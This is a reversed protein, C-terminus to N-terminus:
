IQQPSPPPPSDPNFPDSGSRAKRRRLALVVVAAALVIVAVILLIDLLSLTPAASGPAQPTPSSSGIVSVDNNGEDAVYIDGSSPDYLIGQPGHGVAITSVVSNSVGEIVSINNSGSNAVYIDGNGSDYALWDPGSGVAVTTILSNTSGSIVSVTDGAYNNGSTGADGVYIDGNSADFATGYPGSDAPLPVTAIVANTSGSIVSVTDSDQNAVYVDGDAPDCAASGSYSGVGISDAVVYTSANVVEVENGYHIPVYLYGNLTDYCPSVPDSGGFTITTILSFTSPNVVDMTNGLGNGPNIIDVYLESTEPVYTVDRAGLAVSISGAVTNTEGDIISLNSGGYNGVYVNGNASDYALGTPQSGVSLTAVVCDICSAAQTAQGEALLPGLPPGGLFHENIASHGTDVASLEFMVGTPAFSLTLGILIAVLTANKALM